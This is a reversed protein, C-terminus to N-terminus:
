GPTVTLSATGTKAIGLCLQLVWLTPVKKVDHNKKIKILNVNKRIPGKRTLM